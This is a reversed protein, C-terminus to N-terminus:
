GEAPINATISIIRRKFDDPWIKSSGAFLYHNRIAGQALAVVREPEADLKVTFVQSLKFKITYSRKM